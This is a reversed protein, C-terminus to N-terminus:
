MWAATGGAQAMFPNTEYTILASWDETASGPLFKVDLVKTGNLKVLQDNVLDVLEGRNQAAVSIVRATHKVQGQSYHALQQILAQILFLRSLYKERLEHVIPSYSYPDFLSDLNDAQDNLTEYLEERLRTQIKALKRALEGAGKSM